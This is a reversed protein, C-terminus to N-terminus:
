WPRRAFNAPDWISASARRAHHFDNAPRRLHLPPRHRGAHVCKQRPRDARQEMRAGHHPGHLVRAHGSLTRARRLRAIRREDQQLAGPRHHIRRLLSRRPRHAPHRRPQQRRQAATVGPVIEYPVGAAELATLEEALRAFIAPDGGKLRVVIRGARAEGVMRENIESQPVLKGHGHRGLCIREADPRTCHLLEPGALYDYLIVDAARLCEAGRLTLLGPDGPGAGVLYVTGPNTSM